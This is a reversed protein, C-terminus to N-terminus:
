RKPTESKKRGLNVRMAELEEDSYWGWGMVWGRWLGWLIVAAFFAALVGIVHRATV